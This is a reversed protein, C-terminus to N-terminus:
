YAFRWTKDGDFTRITFAISDGQQLEGIRDIILSAYVTTSYSCPDGNQSHHLSLEYTHGTDTARVRNIRYGWAHQGGQTKPTLHFNLYPGGRWVSTAQIPDEAAPQDEVLNLLTINEATRLEVVQYRGNTRDTMVYGGVIRYATTPHLGQLPQNIAYVDGNDTMLLYGNGSEDTYIDVFETILSPYPEETENGDDSCAGCLSLCIACAACAQWLRRKKDM